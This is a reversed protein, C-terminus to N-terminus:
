NFCTSALLLLHITLPPWHLCSSKILSLQPCPFTFTPWHFCAYYTYALPTLIQSCFYTPYHDKNLSHTPVLIIISQQMSFFSHLITHDTKSKKSNLNFDWRLLMTGIRQVIKLSRKHHINIAYHLTTKACYHWLSYVEVWFSLSHLVLYNHVFLYSWPAM